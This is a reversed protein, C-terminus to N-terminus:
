GHWAGPLNDLIELLDKGASVPNVKEIIKLIVGEEDIIFTTRAAFKGFKLVGYKTATKGNPDSLIPFQARNAEAFKKLIEYEDTSAMFLAIEHSELAKESERLSKCEATWGGTFAKPFWALVVTRGRYDKLAHFKGDSGMLNFEPALDGDTVAFVSQLSM